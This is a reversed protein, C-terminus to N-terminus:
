VCLCDLFKKKGKRVWKASPKKARRKRFDFTILYGESKNKSNLYEILQKHAEEHKKEGYWLKLEIIFQEAEFDVIVDLRKRNRTESEPHYFGKGNIFPRLYTLFLLRCEDELFKQNSKNYLEYYHQMFKKIILPMNLKGNEVAESSLLNSNSRIESTEMLSIFYNYLRLEFIKNHVSVLRENRRLFGFMLGDRIAPNDANYNFEEGRLIMDRLLKELSDSSEINKILDDFLTSQEILILTVAEQIGKSTWDKDLKEDIKQCLRSVLYPYGSTCARIEKSITDIDMGTKHDKEYELLMTSIEQASFSMDVEFDIAINWPSNIRKEGDQLQHTGARIMKLKLNKIDYVGVLIVSQFSYDNKEKRRLYKDRLMGIFRLFVLNNSTKDVEDIMLVIKKECCIKTLFKDLLDFSTVSSDQWDQAGRLKRSEFYKACQSFLGQCFAEPTDFMEDDVGEFSIRIVTYEKILKKELLGLTTTKGYQRARNITFYRGKEVMAAIQNVKDSIDVM